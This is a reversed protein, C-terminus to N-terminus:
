HGTYFFAVVIEIRSNQTREENVLSCFRDKPRLQISPDRMASLEQLILWAPFYLTLFVLVRLVFVKHYSADYKKYKGHSVEATLLM